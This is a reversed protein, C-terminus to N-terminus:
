INLQKNLGKLYPLLIRLGVHGVRAVGVGGLKNKKMRARKMRILHCRKEVLHLTLVGLNHASGNEKM